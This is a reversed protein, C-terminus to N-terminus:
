RAPSASAHGAWCCIFGCGTEYGPRFRRLWVVLGPASMRRLFVVRGIGAAAMMASGTLLTVIGLNVYSASERIWSLGVNRALMASLVVGIAVTWGAKRARRRRENVKDLASDADKSAIAM